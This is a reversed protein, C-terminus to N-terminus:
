QGAKLKELNLEGAPRIDAKLVKEMQKFAHENDEPSISVSCDAPVFLKFDRMYADNATFLVCNNGAIGALILGRAGTHELLLELSTCYFGSHKPKLVFYDDEDPLVLKVFPEGRVGDELCHSVIKNLDSQWKGFNDNVYIVPIRQQKARQKLVAINRGVPLALQLLEEGGEFEFDNIVDILLLAAGANDPVNGHLDDSKVPMKQNIRPKAQLRVPVGM